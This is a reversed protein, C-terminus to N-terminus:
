RSDQSGKFLVNRSLLGVEARIVLEEQDGPAGVRRTESLHAFKLQRDLTLTAGDQSIATIRALESEGPSYRDGTTAIVIEANLPWKVPEKLVITNAGPQATQALHTWTVGVPRGHLDLTGNRVAIVKAGYTPLEISRPNGHMTITAQHQFPSSETGVQFKGNGLIIVYEVNLSVDQNDDFILSGGHIIIGTHHHFLLSIFPSFPPKLLAFCM